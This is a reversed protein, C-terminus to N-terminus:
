FPTMVRRGRCVSLAGSGSRAMKCRAPSFRKARARSAIGAASQLSATPGRMASRAQGMESSPPTRSRRTGLLTHAFSSDRRDTSIQARRRSRVTVTRSSRKRTPATGAM